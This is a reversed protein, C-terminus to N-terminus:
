SPQPPPIRTPALAPFTPLHASSTRCVPTPKTPPTTADLRSPPVFLNDHVISSLAAPYFHPPTMRAPSVSFLPPFIQEAACVPAPSGRRKEWHLPRRPRSYITGPLHASDSGLQGDRGTRGRLLPHRTGSHLLAARLPGQHSWGQAVHWMSGGQQGVFATKSVTASGCVGTDDGGSGTMTEM